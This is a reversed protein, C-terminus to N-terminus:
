SGNGTPCGNKGSKSCLAHSCWGRCNEWGTCWSLWFEGWHCIHQALSTCVWSQWSNVLLICEYLFLDIYLSLGSKLALAMSLFGKKLQWWGTPKGSLLISQPGILHGSQVCILSRHPYSCWEGNHYGLHLKQLLPPFNM